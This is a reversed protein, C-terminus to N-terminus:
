KSNVCGPDQRRTEGSRGRRWTCQDRYLCRWTLRWNAGAIVRTHDFVPMMTTLRFGTLAILLVLLRLRTM